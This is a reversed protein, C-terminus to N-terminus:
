WNDNKKNTAAMTAEAAAAEEGGGGGRGGSGGRTAAKRTAKKSEIGCRSNQFDIFRDLVKDRRGRGFATEVKTGAIESPVKRSSTAFTRSM